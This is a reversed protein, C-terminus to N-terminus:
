SARASRAKTIRARLEEMLRRGAETATAAWEANQMTRPSSAARLERLWPEAKAFLLLGEVSNELLYGPHVIGHRAMGYVM